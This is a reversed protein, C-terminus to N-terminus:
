DMQRNKPESPQQNDEEVEYLMELLEAENEARGSTEYDPDSVISIPQTFTDGGVVLAVMYQGNEVRSAFRGTGGRRRLDWTVKNLGKTGPVELRQVVRGALDRIELEIQRADQGLSYYIEADSSPNAGVFRRTGSDGATPQSQWRTVDAPKYLTAQASVSEPKWQRLATVDAVWLSRGHTAVVIEGSTPHQAVEHVAVTPLNGTFRTWTKGRDISVFMGFETGLYLVDQNDIDERIVRAAGTGQPLMTDLRTWSKGSSQTVLVFPTDVDTRHGDLTIYCRGAAFKSPEISSVWMQKPVVEKLPKGSDAVATAAGTAGLEVSDSTKTLTFPVSFAGNNVELNGRLKGEALTASFVLTAGGSSGEITLKGSVPDFKGGSLTGSSQSTEYDGEYVGEKVPKIALQIRSRDAPMMDRELQGTWTGTLPDKEQKAGPLAETRVEDSAVAETTKEAAPKEDAAAEAPPDQTTSEEAAKEEVVAVEANEGESKETPAVAESEGSDAPAPEESEKTEEAPAAEEAPEAEEEAAVTPDAADPTEGAKPPEESRAAEAPPEVAPPEAAPPEATANQAAGGFGRGGPPGGAEGGRGMGRGFGRGGRGAGPGGAGPGEGAGPGGQGGRGPGGRGTANQAASAQVSDSDNWLDVWTKGGDLTSWLMGDTTGVYLLNEDLPSQGIASGSGDKTRTIEPSIAQVADGKKVSRFVFNGASYHIESNHPSLIFPTKWNFRYETGRPPRPRIFGTQGTRLNRRGMAGNQSEYYLQDPDDPDVLCVFGDGGGIRFWDTNVPGSENRVMTPGGWSGNDQLGGYVNYARRTDLGVHYFQGIAVHNHHDWKKGRDHTVYIGGDSGLIVHRGDRPDIWMAHHDTHVESSAGDSRFTAGGDESVYLETGLVWIFNNDSPDVCIKSYYMPRPNVSNIRTWTVGGDSSRYVGGFENGAEGQQDTMNPNQGGLSQAFPSGRRLAELADNESIDEKKADTKEPAAEGAEPQDADSKAASEAEPEDAKASEAEEPRQGLEMELEVPKGERAVTLKVKDGAKHRRVESQFDGYSLIMKEDIRLVVDGNQLGGKEGPGDKTVETIKAGLEANEGRVGAFPSGEPFQGIRKSEIVAYVFNPDKEYFCLGVRGLEATPLGESVRAWNEGGDTSRWIGAGAGFKVAPDNGDFGDRMRTYTAALMMNPDAPSAVVDMVGTKDDVYLVKKWTKGGDITKYLGRDESPGWLRGLAGVFVVDPNTPHILVAGTQFIKELGMNTWTEGGDTSKYVGDGWSASNRPNEEGTGVWLISPDSPAVDFAGISVTAQKDFQHTFTVGNNDTRLLGGSATAAWWQMPDNSNIALDVIRGSMNAPGISRFPIKSAWDAPLAAASEPSAPRQGQAIQGQAIQGQAIQGQALSPFVSFSFVMVGLTVALKRFLSFGLPGVRM